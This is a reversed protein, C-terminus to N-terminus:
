GYEIQRISSVHTTAEQNHWSGKKEDIGALTKQKLLRVKEETAKFIIDAKKFISATLEFATQALSIAV